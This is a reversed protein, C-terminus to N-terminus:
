ERYMNVIQELAQEDEYRYVTIIEPALYKYGYKVIVIEDYKNNEKDEVLTIKLSKTELLRTRRYEETERVVKFM